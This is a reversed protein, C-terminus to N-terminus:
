HRGTAIAWTTLVILLVAAIALLAASAPDPRTRAVLERAAQKVAPDGASRELAPGRARVAAYDGRGFAEVLADLEPTRPFSSAFRPRPSPQMPDLTSLTAAYISFSSSGDDLV